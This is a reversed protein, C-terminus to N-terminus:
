PNPTFLFSARIRLLREVDAKDQLRDTDKTKLLTDLDVYPIRVGEIRAHKCTQVAQAYKVKAAVTLLDVRPMDGVITFPKESVVKADLERAIGVPLNGLAELVAQTNKENIPILLDVDKTARILGHLTCAFGGIVIYKARRKNLLRCVTVLRNELIPPNKRHPRTMDKPNM